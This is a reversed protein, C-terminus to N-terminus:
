STEVHGVVDGNSAPDVTKEEEVTQVLGSDETAANEKNEDADPAPSQDQADNTEGVEEQEATSDVEKPDESTVAEPESQQEVSATGSDPQDEVPPTTEPEEAVEPEVEPEPKAEELTEEPEAIPTPEPIPVQEEEQAAGGDAATGNDLGSLIDEPVDMTYTFKELTPKGKSKGKVKPPNCAKKEYNFIIDQDSPMTSRFADQEYADRLYRWVYTFEKPIDFDRFAKGAVRIHQLRPLLHCDSFSLVNDVLFKTDQSELYENLKRLEGVLAKDPSGAIFHNFHKYLNEVVTMASINPANKRKLEPCEKNISEFFTELDEFTDYMMGSIDQGAKNRASNVMVVPYKKSWGSAFNKPPCDAQVTFVKFDIDEQNEGLLCTIMFFQQCIPCSGKTEKDIASAKIYLEFKKMNPNDGEGNDTGSM